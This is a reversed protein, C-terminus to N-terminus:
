RGRTAPYCHSPGVDRNDRAKTNLKNTAVRDDRVNNPKLYIFRVFNAIPAASAQIAPGATPMPPFM